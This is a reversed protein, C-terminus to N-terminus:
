FSFGSDATVVHQIYSPTEGMWVNNLNFQISSKALVHAAQNANRNTYCVEAHHFSQMQDRISDIIHGFRSLRQTAENIRSVVTKSDGELV